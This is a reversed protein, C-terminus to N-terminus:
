FILKTLDHGYIFAHFRSVYITGKQQNIQEWNFVGINNGRGLEKIFRGKLGKNM